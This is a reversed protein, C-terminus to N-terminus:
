PGKTFRALYPGITIGVDSFEKVEKVPLSTKWKSPNM